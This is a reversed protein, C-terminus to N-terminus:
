TCTYIVCITLLFALFRVERLLNNAEELKARDAGFLAGGPKGDVLWHIKLAISWVM